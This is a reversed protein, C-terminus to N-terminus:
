GSNGQRADSDLTGTSSSLTIISVNAYDWESCERHGHDKEFFMNRIVFWRSKIKWWKSVQNWKLPLFLFLPCIRCLHLTPHKQWCVLCPCSSLVGALPKWCKLFAKSDNPLLSWSVIAFLMHVLIQPFRTLVACFPPFSSLVNSGMHLLVFLMVWLFPPGQLFISFEGPLLLTIFVGSTEEFCTASYIHCMQIAPWNM